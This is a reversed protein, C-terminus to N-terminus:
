GFMRYEGLDNTSAYGGSPQLRREGNTFAWRMTSVQAGTIPDGFEDLIRGTVVGSRQLVIDIRSVVQGAAVDIPAGPGLPRRQGYSARVYNTRAFSVTYRCAPLEGIEYRGNADTLVAKNVRASGCTARVEVRSLPHENAGAALVRGRIIATGAAAPTPVDRAPAQALVGVLVGILM